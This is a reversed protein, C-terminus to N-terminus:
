LLYFTCAATFIRSCTKTSKNYLTKESTNFLPVTSHYQVKMQVSLLAHHFFINTTLHRYVIQHGHKTPFDIGQVNIRSIVILIYLLSPLCCYRKEHVIHTYHWRETGMNANYLYAFDGNLM